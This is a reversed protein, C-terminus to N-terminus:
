FAIFSSNPRLKIHHIHLILCHRSVPLITFSPFADIGNQNAIKQIKKKGLRKQSLALFFYLFNCVLIANVSERAESNQRNRPMTKNQMNVM